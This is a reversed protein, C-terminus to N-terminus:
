RATAALIALCTWFMAVIASALRDNVTERTIARVFGASAVLAFWAACVWVMTQMSVM